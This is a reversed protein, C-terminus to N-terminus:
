ETKKGLVNYCVKPPSTGRLYPISGTVRCADEADDADDVEEVAVMGVTGIAEATEGDAEQGAEECTEKAMEEPSPSSFVSRILAGSTPMPSADAAELPQWSRSCSDTAASRRLADDCVRSTFSSAVTATGCMNGRGFCAAFASPAM